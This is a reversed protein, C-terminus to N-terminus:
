LTGYAALYWATGDFVFKAWSNTVLAKLTTGGADKVNLNWPGGTNGGTRTITFEDGATANTTSLTAARDATLTGTHRQNVASTLVTLTYDANTSVSQQGGNGARKWQTGNHILLNGGGGLDTAYEQKGVAGTHLTAVTATRNVHLRNNDIVANAGFLQLGAEHDFRFAEVVSAGGVPVISVILRSGFATSGPTAEVVQARIRVGQRFAAGDYGYASFDGLADNQAVAAPSAITGRAHQTSIVPAVGSGLYNTATFGANVEGIMQTIASGGAHSFTMGVTSFDFQHV